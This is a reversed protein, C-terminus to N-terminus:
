VVEGGEFADDADPADDFVPDLEVRPGQFVKLTARSVGRLEELQPLFAVAKRCGYEACREPRAENMQGCKLLSIESPLPGKRPCSVSTIPRPDPGRRVPLWTSAVDSGLM